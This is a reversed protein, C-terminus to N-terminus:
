NDRDEIITRLFNWQKLPLPGLHDQEDRLIYYRDVLASRLEDLAAFEDDAAGYDETDPSYATVSRGVLEVVVPLSRRLLLKFDGLDQIFITKTYGTSALDVVFPRRRNSVEFAAPAAASFLALPFGQDITVLNM